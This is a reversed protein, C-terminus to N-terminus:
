WEYRRVCRLVSLDVAVSISVEFDSAVVFQGRDSM